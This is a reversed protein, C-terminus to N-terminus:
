RGVDMGMHGKSLTDALERSQLNRSQTNEILAAAQACVPGDSDYHVASHHVLEIFLVLVDDEIKLLPLLTVSSLVFKRLALNVVFAEYVDGATGMAKALDNKIIYQRRKKLVGRSRKWQVEFETAKRMPIEQPWRLVHG